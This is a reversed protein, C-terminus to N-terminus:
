FSFLNRIWLIFSAWLRGFFGKADVSDLAILETAHVISDGDKIILSGLVEGDQIPAKLNNSYEYSIKLDKFTPRPLTLIINEAVGLSIQDSKGGWVTIEKLSTKEKIVEQTAYFRFGYELLRQTENFRAKDSNSGAVVAILRMDNRKASGILCYGASSTHGTKIGDASDDKWLLNNRNKQRIDNYSFFKEKYYQYIEPYNEILAASVKALDAASSFHNGDPLGTSNQFLTNSLELSNAYANMLDVFGEETGGVHEALAVTADNGSQIIVGKLLDLVSVKKGEQIFMKSGEMRWAKESILVMDELDLFNNKIQDAVVYSSMVKTMSAPEIPADENFSAIITNTKPEILIFSKVDLSPPNPIFSQASLFVCTSLCLTIFLNKIM